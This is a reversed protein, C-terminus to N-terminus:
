VMPKLAVGLHRQLETAGVSPTEAIVQYGNGCVKLELFADVGKSLTSDGIAMEGGGLQLRAHELDELRDIRVQFDLEYGVAPLDLVRLARYRGEASEDSVARVTATWGCGFLKGNGIDELIAGLGNAVDTASRPDMRCRFGTLGFSAQDLPELDRRHRLPELSYADGNTRLRLPLQASRILKSMFETAYAGDTMVRSGNAVYAFSYIGDVYRVSISDYARRSQKSAREEFGCSISGNGWSVLDRFVEPLQQIETGDLRGRLLLRELKFIASPLVEPETVGYLSGHGLQVRIRSLVQTLGALDVTRSIFRM